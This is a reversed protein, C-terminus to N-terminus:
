KDYGILSTVFAVHDRVTAAPLSEVRRVPLGDIVFLGYPGRTPAFLRAPESGQESQASDIM